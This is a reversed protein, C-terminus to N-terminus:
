KKKKKTANIDNNASPAAVSGTVVVAESDAKRKQAAKQQGVNTLIGTSALKDVGITNANVISPPVGGGMSVGIGAAAKRRKEMKEKEEHEREVLTILTNCRRQLELATRAKMFWNFRFQPALRYRM